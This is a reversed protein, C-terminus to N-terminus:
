NKFSVGASTCLDSYNSNLWINVLLNNQNEFCMQKDVEKIMDAKQGEELKSFYDIFKLTDRYTNLADSPSCRSILDCTLKDESENRPFIIKNKIDAALSRIYQGRMNELDSTSGLVEYNKIRGGIDSPNGLRLVTAVDNLDHWEKPLDSTNKDTMAKLGSFLSSSAQKPASSDRIYEVFEALYDVMRIDLLNNILRSSDTGNLITYEPEFCDEISKALEPTSAFFIFVPNDTRFYYLSMDKDYYKFSSVESNLIESKPLILDSLKKHEDKLASATNYLEAVLSSNTVTEPVKEINSIGNMLVGLNKIADTPTRISVDIDVANKDKYAKDLLFKEVGKEIVANSIKGIVPESRTFTTITDSFENFVGDMLRELFSYKPNITEANSQELSVVIFNNEMYNFPVDNNLVLAPCFGTRDILYEQSTDLKVSQGLFDLAEQYIRVQNGTISYLSPLIFVGDKDRRTQNLRTTLLDQQDRLAVSSSDDIKNKQTKLGFKGKKAHKKLKNPDFAM